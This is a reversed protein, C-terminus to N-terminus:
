RRKRRSQDSGKGNPPVQRPGPRDRRPPPSGGGSGFGAALFLRALMAGLVVVGAVASAILLVTTRTKSSSKATGPPVGVEVLGTKHLEASVQHSGPADTSPLQSWSQGAASTLIVHGASNAIPTSLLPYTLGVSSQGGFATVKRGSPRYSAQVRYANGAVLLGPPTAFQEPDLPEVTVLVQTQGRSPPVAGQSLVFNVQGDPTSFASLQSGKATLKVPFRIGSPPRNDAALAAPPNVWRYPTPPALGDLLPRRALPSARGSLSAGALYVVALALGLALARRGGNARARSM